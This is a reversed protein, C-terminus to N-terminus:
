AFTSYDKEPSNQSTKEKADKERRIREIPKIQDRYTKNIWALQNQGLLTKVTKDM